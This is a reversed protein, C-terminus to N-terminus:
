ISDIRCIQNAEKEATKVNMYMVYAQEMDTMTKHKKADKDRKCMMHDM